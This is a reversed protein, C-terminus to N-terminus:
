KPPGFTVENVYRSVDKDSKDGLFNWPKLLEISSTLHLGLVNKNYIM